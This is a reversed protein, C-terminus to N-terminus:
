GRETAARVHRRVASLIQQRLPGDWKGGRSFPFRHERGRVTYVAHAHKGGEEFRHPINMQSLAHSVVDRPDLRGELLRLARGVTIATPMVSYKHTRTSM